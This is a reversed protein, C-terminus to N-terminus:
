RDNVSDDHKLVFGLIGSTEKSYHLTSLQHSHWILDIDYCPVLFKDPNMKKLYLYMRYRLQADRLFEKDRYHDLSVQYYFVGQRLAAAKIDYEICSSEGEDLSEPHSTLHSLDIQFPVGPYNEQWRALTASRKAELNTLSDPQHGLSRSVKATCDKSYQVPALMHVHWVWHIDLPPAYHLDNEMKNSLKALLPMWYKEYRIISYQIFDANYFLKRQSDIFRLFDLENLAAPILDMLQLEDLEKMNLAEHLNVVDM